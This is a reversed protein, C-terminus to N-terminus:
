RHLGFKGGEGSECSGEPTCEALEARCGLAIIHAGLGSLGDKLNKALM